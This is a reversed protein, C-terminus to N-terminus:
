WRLYDKYITIQSLKAGLRQLNDIEIEDLGLSETGLQRVFKEDEETSIRDAEPVNFLILNAERKEEDVKDEFM